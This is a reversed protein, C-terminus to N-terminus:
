GAFPPFSQRVKPATTNLVATASTSLSPSGSPRSFEVLPSLSGGLGSAGVISRGSGLRFAIPAFEPVLVEENFDTGHAGVRSFRVSTLDIGVTVM